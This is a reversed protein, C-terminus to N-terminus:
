TPERPTEVAARLGKHKPCRAGRGGSTSEADAEGSISWGRSRAGRICAAETRGTFQNEGRCDPWDCYVDMSYCGVTSM